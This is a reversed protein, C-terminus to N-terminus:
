MQGGIWRDTEPESGSAATGRGYGGLPCGVGNPDANLGGCDPVPIRRLGGNAHIVWLRAFRPALPGLLVGGRGPGLM